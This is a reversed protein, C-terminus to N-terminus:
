LQLACAPCGCGRAGAAPGGGQIDSPQSTCLRRPRQRLLLHHHAEHLGLVAARRRHGGSGHLPEAPGPLPQLTQVGLRPHRGRHLQRGGRDVPLWCCSDDIGHRLPLEVRLAVHGPEAHPRLVACAAEDRHDAARAVAAPGEVRQEVLVEPKLGILRSLQHHDVRALHGGLEELLLRHLVGTHDVPKEGHRPLCGARRSQHVLLHFVGHRGHQLLVHGRLDHVPLLAGGEACLDGDEAPRLAQLPVDSAADCRACDHCVEVVAAEVGRVVQALHDLLQGRLAARCGDRQGSPVVQAYLLLEEPM